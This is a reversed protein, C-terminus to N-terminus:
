DINITTSNSSNNNSNNNNTSSAARHTSYRQRNPTRPIVEYGMHTDLNDLVELCVLQRETEDRIYFPDLFKAALTDYDYAFEDYLAYKEVVDLGYLVQPNNIHRELRERIHSLDSYPRLSEMTFWLQRTYIRLGFNDLIFEYVLTTSYFSVSTSYLNDNPRKLVNPPPSPDVEWANAADRLTLRDNTTPSSSRSIENPSPPPSRTFSTSSIRTYLSM